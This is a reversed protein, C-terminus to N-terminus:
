PRAGSIRKKARTERVKKRVAESGPYPKTAPFAGFFELLPKKRVPQLIAHDGRVTIMVSDGDAIDLAERVAKPITIQGKYTVKATKM